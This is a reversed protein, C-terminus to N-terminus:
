ELTSFFLNGEPYRDAVAIPLATGGVTSVSYGRDELFRIRDQQGPNCELMLHAPRRPGSWDVGQLAELEFGEVDMKLLAVKRIGADGLIDDIRRGRVSSAGAVAGQKSVSAWAALDSSEAALDLFCDTAAAGANVARVHARPNLRANHVLRRFTSPMPEIAVVEHGTGAGIVMSYLGMHAGVDVFAGETECVLGLCRALSMPEYRGTTLLAWCVYDTGSIDLRAGSPGHRMIRTGPIRLLLRLIRIRAPHEPGRAYRTALRFFAGEPQWDADRSM